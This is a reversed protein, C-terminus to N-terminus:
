RPVSVFQMVIGGLLVCAICASLTVCVIGIAMGWAFGEATRELVADSPKEPDYYVNVQGGLPYSELTTEARSPSSQATIGGFAIRKGTFVQNGVQYVYEVAPYYAYSTHGDDDTSASRKVQASTIQGTTLPWDQSASAKRRSRVSSVILFVGLALLAVVFISGCVVAFGLPVIEGSM